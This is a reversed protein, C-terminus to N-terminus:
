ASGEERLKASPNGVIRRGILMIDGREGLRAEEHFVEEVFAAAESTSEMVPVLYRYLYPVSRTDGLIFHRALARTMAEVTHLEPDHNRSWAAAPDGSAALETVFERPKPAILARGTRSGIVKLFWKLTPPDVEDFAFDEILVAGQPNLVERARGAVTQLPRIHHLSRTFVVADVPAIGFAPWSAHVVPVGREKAQAIVEADSDLGTVRYGRRQLEAAVHGAGCGVELIAAQSPINAAIFAVTAQTPVDIPRRMPRTLRMEVEVAGDRERVPERGTARFGWREYLRRARNNHKGVYLWVEALGKARAWSLVAGVLEDASGTGRLAPHVWVSVLFAASPDTDHPIGAAIGMAGDARELIFTAGNVLWRRWDEASRALERELTSDFADPSDTLARVRLGRVIAEDGPGARRVSVRGDGM